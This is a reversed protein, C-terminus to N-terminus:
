VNGADMGATDHRPRIEMGESRMSVVVSDRPHEQQGELGEEDRTAHELQQGQQENVNMELITAADNEMQAQVKRRRRLFFVVFMAVICVAIIGVLFASLSDSGTEM